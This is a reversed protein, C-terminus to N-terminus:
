RHLCAEVQVDVAEGLGADRTEVATLVALGLLVLQLVFPAFLVSKLAVGAQAFGHVDLDLGAKMANQSAHFMGEGVLALTLLWLQARRLPLATSRAEAAFLLAFAAMAVFAMAILAACLPTVSMADPAFLLSPRVLLALLALLNPVAVVAGVARGLRQLPGGDLLFVGVAAVAPAWLLWVVVGFRFAFSAVAADKATFALVAAVTALAQQALLAALAHVSRTIRVAQLAVLVCVAAAVAYVLWAVSVIGLEIM